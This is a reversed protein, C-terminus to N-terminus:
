GNSHGDMHRIPAVVAPLHEEFRNVKLVKDTEELSSNTSKRDVHVAVVHHGIVKM